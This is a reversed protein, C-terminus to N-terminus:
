GGCWLDFEVSEYCTVGMLFHIRHVLRKNNFCNFGWVMFFVIYMISFVFYLAPLNTLGAALYDKTTESNDLNYVETRVEM